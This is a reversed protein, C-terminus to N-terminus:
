IIGDQMLAVMCTDSNFVTMWNDYIALGYVSKYESFIPMDTYLPKIETNKNRAISKYMAKIDKTEGIYLITEDELEYCKVGM